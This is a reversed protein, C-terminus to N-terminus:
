IINQEQATIRCHGTISDFKASSIFAANLKMTFTIKKINNQFRYRCSKSYSGERIHIKQHAIRVDEDAHRQIHDTKIQIQTGKYITQKSKYRRAKTYPRNQNTDAHKQILLKIRSKIYTKFISYLKKAQLKWLILVRLRAHNLFVVM